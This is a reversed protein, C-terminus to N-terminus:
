GSTSEGAEEAREREARKERAPWRLGTAETLWAGDGRLVKRGYEMLRENAQSRKRAMHQSPPMESVDKDQTSDFRVLFAKSGDRSVAPEALQGPELTWVLAQTTLFRDGDTPREPNEGRGFPARDYYNYGSAEVLEKFAAKEVEPYWPGDLDEPKAALTERLQELKEVALEKMRETLWMEAVDDRIEAFPKEARPLKKALRALTIAKESVAVRSVYQGDQYRVIQGALNPSGWPEAEAMAAREMGEEAGIAYGLGLAEAEAALDVAPSEESTDAAAQRDAIDTLFAELASKIQSELLAQDKVEEFEFFEKSKPAAEDGPEQTEAPKVFRQTRYLDYYTRAQSDLDIGEPAPYAALLAEAAPADATLDVYVVEPVFLEQTYLRMKEPLPRDAYWATLDEDSPLEAEAEARFDEVPVSAIDFDYNPSAEIWADTAAASDAIMAPSLMLTRTVLQVRRARRVEEMLARQSIGYEKAYRQLNANSGGMVQGLFFRAEEDSVDIGADRAMQDYIVFSAVDEDTVDRRARGETLRDHFALKPPIYVGLSLMRKLAQGTSDFEARTLVHDEKSVPDTWALVPDDAGGGGGGSTMTVSFMDAVVFIVVLFLVLGLTAYFRLRSQGKPVHILEDDDHAQVDPQNTKDAM